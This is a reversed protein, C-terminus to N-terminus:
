VHAVYYKNIQKETRAHAGTRKQFRNISGTRTQFRNTSGTRKKFWDQILGSIDSSYFSSKQSLLIKKEKIQKDFCLSEDFYLGLFKNTESYPITKNFLYGHSHKLCLNFFELVRILFPNPLNILMKNHIGDFGIASQDKAKNIAEKLESLTIKVFKISKKLNLQSLGEQLM